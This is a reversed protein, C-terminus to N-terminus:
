GSAGPRFRFGEPWGAHAHCKGTQPRSPNSWGPAGSRARRFYGVRVGPSGAPRASWRRQVRQRLTEGELYEMVLYHVGADSAAERIQIIAPHRLAAMARAESHFRELRSPHLAQGPPLIKIAVTSGDRQDIARYVLGMGGEGLLEAVTYPGLQKGSLFAGGLAEMLGHLDLPQPLPIDESPAEDLLALVEAALQQDGAEARVFSERQSVPRELAAHFLREIAQWRPSM